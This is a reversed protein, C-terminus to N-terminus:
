SIAVEAGEGVTLRFARPLRFDRFVSAGRGVISGDLRSGLHRITAGPLIVSNEVEANEIVVEAGITTYPGIYADSIEVGPGVTVPGRVVTATLRVTPDLVVPGLIDTDYRAGALPAFRLGSLFFRNAELMAGPGHRYRWVNGVRRVEIRGGADALREAAYDIELDLPEGARRISPDVDLVGPGFVYIGAEALAVADNHAPDCGHLAHKLGSHTLTQGLHVIFPRGAVADAVHRLGALFGAGTEVVDTVLRAAPMNGLNGRVEDALSPPTVLAVRRIDVALLDELAHEVLPRNGVPTLADASVFLVAISVM